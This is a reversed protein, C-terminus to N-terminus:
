VACPLDMSLPFYSALAVSTLSPLFHPKRLCLFSGYLSDAGSPALNSGLLVDFVLTNSFATHFCSRRRPSLQGAFVKLANIGTFFHM